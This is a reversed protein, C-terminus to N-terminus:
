EVGKPEWAMKDHLRNYREELRRRREPNKELRWAIADGQRRYKGNRVDEAFKRIDRLEEDTLPM